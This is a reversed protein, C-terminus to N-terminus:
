KRNNKQKFSLDKLQVDVLYHKTLFKRGLLIPYRMESRDTLSFKLTRKKGFVIVETDITYRNESGGSSNKVSKSSYNAAYFVKGEFEPHEPDLVQFSLVRKEKHLVEKTQCCHLACGYAGTDIKAEIDFLELEPLDIKDKRGIVKM